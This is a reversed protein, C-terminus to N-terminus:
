VLFIMLSVEITAAIFFLGYIFIMDKISIARSLTKTITIFIGYGEIILIPSSALLFFPLLEVMIVGLFFNIGRLVSLFLIIIAFFLAFIRPHEIVVNAYKEKEFFNSIVLNVYFTMGLLILSIVAVNNIFIMLLLLIPNQSLNDLIELFIRNMYYSLVLCVLFALGMLITYKRKM